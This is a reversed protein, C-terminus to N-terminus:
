RPAETRNGVYLISHEGCWDNPTVPAYMGQVNLSAGAPLLVPTPPNRRCAGPGNIIKGPRFFKCNSCTETM